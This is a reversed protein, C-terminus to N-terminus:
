STAKSRAVEHYTELVESATREWSFRRVQQYGRAILNARLDDDLLADRLGRAIDFVNEPNVLVAADGLVEPLSSVNSAVVPTGTAMAELPPLGFGEYLSPFAFVSAAQYFIRLTDAPVFGLFRIMEEVRSQMAALRVAPYRSIEDGIVILRLDKFLPHNGLEGRLVAFAEILRPVNKQPRIRGAYLVFPYNIQYRQLIRRRERRHADSDAPRAEAAVPDRLFRPDPADHIQRIREPPVGLLNEVDRRTASSVAIVKGSRLLGRRVRYLRLHSRWSQQHDYLLSSLDHVTVVYPRPMWLSVQHLPIHFLDAEFRRLFFPFHFNDRPDSDPRDYPVAEFNPPLGAFEAIDDRHAVLTYHNEQDLKALAGTLNRIYTGVGFDKIHRADIVFRLPM